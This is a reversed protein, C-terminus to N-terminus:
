LGRDPCPIYMAEEIAVFPVQAIENVTRVVDLSYAEFLCLCRFRAPLFTTGRYSVPSGSASLRRSAEALANQMGRLHKPTLGPLSRDVVYTPVLTANSGPTRQSSNCTTFGRWRVYPRGVVHM